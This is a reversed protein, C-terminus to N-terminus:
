VSREYRIVSPAAAARGRRRIALAALGALSLAGLVVGAGTAADAWDFAGRTATVPHLLRSVPGPGRTGPRDDPRVGVSRAPAAGRLGARDDPRTAGASAALLAATALAAALAAAVRRRRSTTGIM